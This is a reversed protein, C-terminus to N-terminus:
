MKFSFCKPTIINMSAPTNKDEKEENVREEMEREKGERDRARKELKM